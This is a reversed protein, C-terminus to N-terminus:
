PGTVLKEWSRLIVQLDIPNQVSNPDATCATVRKSSLIVTTPERATESLPFCLQHFQGFQYEELVQQFQQVEAKSVQRLPQMEQSPNETGPAQLIRGDKLLVTTQPQGTIGGLLIARFVAKKPFRPPQQAQPFPIAHVTFLTGLDSSARDWKVLNGSHDTRYVWHQRHYQVTVQWGKVFVEPCIVGVPGLGLCGDSWTRPEAQTIDALSVHEGFQNRIAQLVAMGVVEPLESPATLQPISDGQVFNATLTPGPQSLSPGLNDAWLAPPTTATASSSALGQALAIMIGLLSTPSDYAPTRVRLPRLQVSTTSPPDNM